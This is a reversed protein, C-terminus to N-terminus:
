HYNKKIIRMEGKRQSTKWQEITRKDLFEEKSTDMVKCTNKFIKNRDIVNGTKSVEYLLKKNNLQRFWLIIYYFSYYDWAWM